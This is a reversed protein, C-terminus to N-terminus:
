IKGVEFGDKRLHEILFKRLFALPIERQQLRFARYRKLWDKVLEM